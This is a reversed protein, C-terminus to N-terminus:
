APCRRSPGAVELLERLREPEVLREVLPVEGPQALDDLAVEPRRHGPRADIMLTSACRMGFVIMSIPEASNMLRTSPTDSPIKEANRLCGFDVVQQGDDHEEPIESGDYRSASM